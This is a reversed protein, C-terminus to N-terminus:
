KLFSSVSGPPSIKDSWKQSGVKTISHSSVLDESVCDQGSEM